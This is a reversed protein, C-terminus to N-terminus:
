MWILHQCINRLSFLPVQLRKRSFIQSFSFGSFFVSKALEYVFSLRKLLRCIPYNLRLKFKKKEKWQRICEFTLWSSHCMTLELKIREDPTFRDTFMRNLTLFKVYNVSGCCSLLFFPSKVIEDFYLLLIFWCFWVNFIMPPHARIVPHYAHTYYNPKWWTTTAEM